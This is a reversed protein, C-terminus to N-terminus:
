GPSVPNQKRTASPSPTSSPPPPARTPGRPPSRSPSTRLWWVWSDSTEHRAPQQRGGLQLHAGRRGGPVVPWRQHQGLHRDRQRRHYRPGPGPGGSGEGPLQREQRRHRHPHPVVGVGVVDVALDPLLRGHLVRQHPGSDLRLPFQRGHRGTGSTPLAVPSRAWSGGAAWHQHGHGLRQHGRDLRGLAGSTSPRSGPLDSRGPQPQRGPGRTSSSTIRGLPRPDESQRQGGTGRGCGTTARPTCSASPPRSGGRSMVGYSPSAPCRSTVTPSNLDGQIVVGGQRNKVLFLESASISGWAGYGFPNEQVFVERVAGGHGLWQPTPTASSRTPSSRTAPARGSTRGPGSSSWATRTACPRPRRPTPPPSSPTRRRPPPTPRTRTASSIPPGGSTM